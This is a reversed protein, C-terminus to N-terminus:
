LESKCFRCMKATKAIMEGCRPCAKREVGDTAHGPAEPAHLKILGLFEQAKANTSFEQTISFLSAWAHIILRNCDDERVAKIDFKVPWNTTLWRMREGAEIRFSEDSAQENRLVLGMEGIAQKVASLLDELNGAHRYGVTVDKSM